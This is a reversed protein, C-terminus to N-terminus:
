VSTRLQSAAFRERAERNEREEQEKTLRQYFNSVYQRERQQAAARKEYNNAWDAPDYAPIMSAAFAAAMSPKPPPWIQRGSDWDLLHVEALLSPRERNFGDLNRAILEPDRVSQVGAPRRQHLASIRQRHAAIRAFLDSLKNLAPPCTERWEQALQISEEDLVQAEAEYERVCAEECAQQHRVQLKSLLKGLRNAAFTADEIAQRAVKPDLSLTQDVTGEREAEAIGVETEAILAAIDASTIATDPQLADSIRQELTPQTNMIAEEL